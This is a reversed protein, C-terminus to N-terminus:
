RASLSWALSVAWGLVTFGLCLNIAFIAFKNPLARAFAITTPIFYIEILILAGITIMWILESGNFAIGITVLILLLIIAHFGINKISDSYPRTREPRVLAIHIPQGSSGRGLRDTPLVKANQITDPPLIGTSHSAILSIKLYLSGRRSPNGLSIVSDIDHKIWCRPMIRHGNIYCGNTSPKRQDGDHIEIYASSVRVLLHSGSIQDYSSPIVIDCGVGRGVSFLSKGLITNVVERKM